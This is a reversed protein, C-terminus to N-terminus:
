GAGSMSQAQTQLSQRTIVELPVEGLSLGNVSVRFVYIGEVDFIVQQASFSAHVAPVWHAESVQSDWGLNWRIPQLFPRGHPGWADVGIVSAQNIEASDFSVRIVFSLHPHVHPVHDAVIRTFGGGTIYLRGDPHAIAHDAILALDLKM